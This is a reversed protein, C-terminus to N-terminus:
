INIGFLILLYYVATGLAFTLITYICVNQLFESEEIRLSIIAVLYIIFMTVVGLGVAKLFYFLVM